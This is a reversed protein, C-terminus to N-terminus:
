VSTNLCFIIDRYEVGYLDEIQKLQPVDPYTKGREWNSLTDVSVDLKAAAETQKLGANIRAAKLTLSM